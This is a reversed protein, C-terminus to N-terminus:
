GRKSWYKAETFVPMSVTSGPQRQWQDCRQHQSVVNEKNAHHSVGNVFSASPVFHILVLPFFPLIFNFIISKDRFFTAIDWGAGNYSISRFAVLFRSIHQTDSWFGASFHHVRCHSWLAHKKEIFFSSSWKSWKRLLSFTCIVLSNELSVSASESGASWVVTKEANQM